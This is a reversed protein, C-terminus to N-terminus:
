PYETSPVYSHGESINLPVIIVRQELRTLNYLFMIFIAMVLSIVKAPWNELLKSIKSDLSM